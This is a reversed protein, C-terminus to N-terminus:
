DLKFHAVSAATPSATKSDFYPSICHLEHIHSHCTKSLLSTQILSPSINM